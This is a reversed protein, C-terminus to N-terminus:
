SEIIKMKRKRLENFFPKAPVFYEPSRSGTATITGEKIMQAIISCPLGTDINCGHEEWGKLTSVLCQMTKTKEKGNKKGYVKLWLVEKEKYGKPPKTPKLSEALLDIPRLGNIYKKSGLGTKILTMITDYSFKPFGAYFKINKIKKHQLYHRFTYPEPHPVLFVEQQGVYSFKTTHFESQPNVKKLKGNHIIIPKETFEEIISIISFPVVFVEKNSNWSIGTKVTDITDFEKAAQRLMVNVIGPASGCGTIACLGKNQFQTHLKFQQLTIEPESGLDIYHSRSSLCQKQVSLNFDGEACNIVIKPKAQSFIKALMQKDTLELYQFHAKKHKKIIKEHKKKKRECILLTKEKEM